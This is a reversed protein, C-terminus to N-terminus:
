CTRWLKQEQWHLHLHEGALWRRDDRANQHHEGLMARAQGSATLSFHRNLLDGSNEDLSEHSWRITLVGFGQTCRAWIDIPLWDISVCKLM